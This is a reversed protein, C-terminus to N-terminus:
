MPSSEQSDQKELHPNWIIKLPEKELLISHSSSLDELNSNPKNSINDHNNNNNIKNKNEDPIRVRRSGGLLLEPDEFYDHEEIRSTGITIYIREVSAVPSSDVSNPSTDPLSSISTSPLLPSPSQPVRIPRRADASLSRVDHSSSDLNEDTGLLTHDAPDKHMPQTDKKSGPPSSKPHTGSSIKHSGGSKPGDSTPEAEKNATPKTSKLIGANLSQGVIMMTNVLIYMNKLFFPVSLFIIVMVISPLVLVTWPVLFSDLRRILGAYFSKSVEMSKLLRRVGLGFYYILCSYIVAAVMAFSWYSKPQSLSYAWCPVVFCIMVIVVVVVSAVRFTFRLQEVLKETRGKLKETLLVVELYQSIVISLEIWLLALGLGSFLNLAVDRTGLTLGTSLRVIYVCAHILGYLGAIVPLARHGQNYVRSFAVL